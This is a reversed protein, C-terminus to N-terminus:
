AMQRVRVISARAAEIGLSQAVDHAHVPRSRLLDVLEWAQIRVDEEPSGGPMDDAYEDESAPFAGEEGDSAEDFGDSPEDFFSRHGYPGGPNGGPKFMKEKDGGLGRLAISGGLTEKQALPLGNMDRSEEQKVPVASGGACKIEFPPVTELALLARQFPCKKDVFGPWEWCDGAEKTEESSTTICEAREEEAEKSKPSKESLM